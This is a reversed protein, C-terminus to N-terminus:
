GILVTFYSWTFSIAGGAPDECTLRLDENSAGQGLVGGGNGEVVGSGSKVGPHASVVGAADAAPTNATGFGCRYGVDGTNAGDAMASWRTVVIATGAAVTVLATDTQAGDADTIELNKTIIAPAGGLVWPVGNRNGYWNSRDDATVATPQAGIDIAKFGLKVPEGADATDHAVDGSVSAGDSAGNDWDDLVSLSAIETDQKASTAAGTPLASSLVDVDGIDVGSNATLKGIGATGARLVVQQAHDADLLISGADNDDLANPTAQYQGGIVMVKSTAATFAADDAFVPDDILQLATLANGDVQVAFTGANTVAHSAVTLTVGSPDVWLRGGAVQLFEYDGDTGSQNAPSDTRRALVVAGSHGGASAEDEARVINDILQLATLADGDVQVAFTGANTVPGAIALQNSANVNVGRENGAADRIQTYLERRGSMRLAGADGEDVSDPGTDDFEAGFMVVADTGPTFAADDAKLFERLTYAGESGTVAVPVIVQILATDGGASAERAAM